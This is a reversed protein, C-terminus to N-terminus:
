RETCTVKSSEFPIANVEQFVPSMKISVVYFITFSFHQRARKICHLSPKHRTQDLEGTDIM